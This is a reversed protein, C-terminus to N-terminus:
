FSIHRRQTILTFPVLTIFVPSHDSHFGPKISSSVIKETLGYSTLFFDLRCFIKSPNRRSWTYKLDDPHQFRWIDIMETQEMYTNVIAQSKFNTSPLGGKKDKTLDLVLNFDGSAIRNDNPLTEIQNIVSLFFDEDDDNPAYM